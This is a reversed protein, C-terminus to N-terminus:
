CANVFMVAQHSITIMIRIFQFKKQLEEDGGGEYMDAVGPMQKECIFRYLLMATFMSQNLMNLKQLSDFHVDENLRPPVIGEIVKGRLLQNWHYEIKKLKADIAAKDHDQLQKVM